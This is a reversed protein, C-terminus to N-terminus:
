LKKVFTRTIRINGDNRIEVTNGARALTLDSGCVSIIKGNADGSCIVGAVLPTCKENVEWNQCSDDSDKSCGIAGIILLVTLLRKM